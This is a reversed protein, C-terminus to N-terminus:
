IRASSRFIQASLERGPLLWICLTVIANFLPPSSSGHILLETDVAGPVACGGLRRRAVLIWTRSGCQASVVRLRAGSRSGGMRRCKAAAAVIPRERRLFRCPSPSHVEEHGASSLVSIPTVAVQHVALERSSRVVVPRWYWWGSTVFPRVNRTDRRYGPKGEELYGVLEEHMSLATFSAACPKSGDAM